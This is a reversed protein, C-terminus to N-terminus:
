ILLHVHQPRNILPQVEKLLVAWLGRHSNLVSTFSSLPFLLSADRQVTMSTPPKCRNKGSPDNIQQWSLHPDQWNLFFFFHPWKDTLYSAPSVNASSDAQGAPFNQLSEERSLFGSVGRLTRHLSSETWTWKLWAQHLVFDPLHCFRWHEILYVSFQVWLLDNRFFDGGNPDTTLPEGPSHLRLYTSVSVDHPPDKLKINNRHKKHM